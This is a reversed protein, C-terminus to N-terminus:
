RVYAVYLRGNSAPLKLGYDAAADLDATIQDPPLHGIAEGVEGAAFSTTRGGISGMGSLLEPAV